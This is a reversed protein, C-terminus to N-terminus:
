RWPSHNKALGKCGGLGQSHKLHPQRVSQNERKVREVGPVLNRDADNQTHIGKDEFFCKERNDVPKGLSLALQALPPSLGVM